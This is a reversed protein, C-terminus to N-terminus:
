EPKNLSERYVPDKAMLPMQLLAFVITIPMVGWFKFNAWFSESFNRWIFENLLALFVFFLGWRVAIKTWTQDTLAFVSGFLMKWVNQGFLLGGFIASAWLSNIITPKLKIFLADHFYLTLGGFITVIVATVALMPPLRREKFWSYGIALLTVVMFVGTAIFIAQDKAFRNALNYTIMFIAIPGMEVALKAGQGLAKVTEPATMQPTEGEASESVPGKDSM